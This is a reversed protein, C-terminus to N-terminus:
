IKVYFASRELNAKKLKFEKLIGDNENKLLKLSM